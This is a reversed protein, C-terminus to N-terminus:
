GAEPEKGPHQEAGEWYRGKTGKCGGTTRGNRRPQERGKRFGVHCDSNKCGLPKDKEGLDVTRSCKTAKKYTKSEWTLLAGKKLAM